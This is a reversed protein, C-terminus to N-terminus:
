MLVVNDGLSTTGRDRTNAQLTMVRHLIGLISNDQTVSGGEDYRRDVPVPLKRLTRLWAM